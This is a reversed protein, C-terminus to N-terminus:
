IARCLLPAHGFKPKTHLIMNAMSHLTLPTPRVQLYLVITLPGQPLLRALLYHSIHVLAINISNSILRINLLYKPCLIPLVLHNNSAPLLLLLEKTSIDLNRAQTSGPVVMQSLSSIENWVCKTLIGSPRSGQAPEGPIVVKMYWSSIGTDDWAAPLILWTMIVVVLDAVGGWGRNGLARGRLPARIRPIVLLFAQRSWGDDLYKYNVALM